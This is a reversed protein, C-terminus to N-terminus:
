TKKNISASHLYIKTIMQYFDQVSYIGKLYNCNRCCPVCNDLNHPLKSNKRDIGQYLYAGHEIGFASSNKSARFMNHTQSPPIGCYFCNQETLYIFDQFTLDGDAYRGKYIERASAMKAAFPDTYPQTGLCGCSKQPDPGRMASGPLITQKGCECSCLWYASTQNLHAPPDVRELVTLKGSTQGLMNVVSQEHLEEALCGCSKTHKQRLKDASLIVENGCRCSCLWYASKNRKVIHGPTPARRLVTLYGFQRNKLNIAKKTM